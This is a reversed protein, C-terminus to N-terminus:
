PSEIEEFISNAIYTAMKGDEEGDVEALNRGYGFEDVEHDGFLNFNNQPHIRTDSSFKQVGSINQSQESDRQDEQFQINRQYNREDSVIKPEIQPNFMPRGIAKFRMSNEQLNMQSFAPNEQPLVNSFVKTEYMVASKSAGAKYIQSKPNLKGRAGIVKNSGSMSSNSTTNPTVSKPDNSKKIEDNEKLDTPSNIELPKQIFKINMTESRDNTNMTKQNSQPDSSSNDEKKETFDGIDFDDEEAENVQKSKIVKETM